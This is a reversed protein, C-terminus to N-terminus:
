WPMHIYVLDERTIGFRDLLENECREYPEAEDARDGNKGDDFASMDDLDQNGFVFGLSDFDELNEPWSM